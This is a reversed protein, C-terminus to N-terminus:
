PKHRLMAGLLTDLKAENTRIRAENTKQWRRMVKDRGKMRGKKTASYKASRRRSDAQKSPTTRSASCGWREGLSQLPGHLCNPREPHLHKSISAQKACDFTM